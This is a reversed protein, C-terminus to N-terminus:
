GDRESATALRCLGNYVTHSSYCMLTSNASISCASTTIVKWEFLTCLFLSMNAFDNYLAGESLMRYVSRSTM